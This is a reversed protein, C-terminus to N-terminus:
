ALDIKNYCFTIVIVSALVLLINYTLSYILSTDNYIVSTYGGGPFISTKFFLNLVIFITSFVFGISEKTLMSIMLNFTQLSTSGVIYCVFVKVILNYDLIEINFAYFCIYMYSSYIFILMCNYIFIFLIKSICIITRNKYRILMLKNYTFLDDYVYKSFSFLMFIQISMFYINDKLLNNSFDFNPLIFYNVIDSYNRSCNIYVLLPIFVLLILMIITTTSKETGFKIDRALLKLIM